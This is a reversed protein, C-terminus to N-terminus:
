RLLHLQHSLAQRKGEFHHAQKMLRSIGEELHEAPTGVVPLTRGHSRDIDPRTPALYWSHAAIPAWWRARGNKKKFTKEVSFYKRDAEANLRM